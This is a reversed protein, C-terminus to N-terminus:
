VGEPQSTARSQEAEIKKALDILQQYTSVDVTPTVKPDEKRGPRETHLLSHEGLVLSAVKEQPAVELSVTFTPRVKKNQVLVAAIESAKKQIGAIVDDSLQVDDLLTNFVANATKYLRETAVLSNAIKFTTSQISKELAKAQREREVKDFSAQKELMKERKQELRANPNHLYSPEIGAAKNMEGAGEKGTVWNPNDEEVPAELGMRDIVKSLEAIEFSIRRDKERRVQDYRKNYALTNAEEVLRQIQIRNLHEKGAINAIVDNLDEGNMFRSAADEAMALLRKRFLQGQAVESAIDTDKDRKPIM